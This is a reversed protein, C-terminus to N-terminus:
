SPEEENVMAVGARLLADLPNDITEDIEMVRKISDLAPWISPDADRYILHAIAMTPNVADDHFQHHNHMIRDACLLTAYHRADISNKISGAEYEM